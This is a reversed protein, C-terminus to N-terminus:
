PKQPLPGRSPKGSSQPRPQTQKRHKRHARPALVPTAREPEVRFWGATAQLQGAARSLEDANSRVRESGGVIRSAFQDVSVTADAIARTDRSTDSISNSLKLIAQSVKELEENSRVTSGQVGEIRVRIDETAAATQGALKKIEDAVVAFGAGAAGARGAEIAANLALLNTQMSIGNITDTIKGIERVARSLRTMQASINNEADAPQSRDATQAAGSNAGTLDGTAANMANALSMANATLQEAAAAAAHARESVVRAGGSMDGSSGALQISASAVQEVGSQIARVTSNMRGITQNLASAMDGIEGGSKVNLRETLDGEAVKKLVAVALRLPRAISGSIWLAFIVALVLAAIATKLALSATETAQSRSQREVGGEMESFVSRTSDQLAAYDTQFATEHQKVSAMSVALDAQGIKQGDQEVAATAHIVEGKKRAQEPKQFSAIQKGQADAIACEEVDGDAGAQQCLADLADKDSEVLADPALNAVLAVLTHAKTEIAARSAQVQGSLVKELAAAQQSAASGSLASTNKALGALADRQSHISLWSMGAVPVIVLGAISIVMRLRLSVQNLLM